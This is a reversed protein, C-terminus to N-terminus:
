SNDGKVIVQVSTRINNFEEEKVEEGFRIEEKISGRWKRLRSGDEM